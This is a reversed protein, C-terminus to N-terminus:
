NINAQTQIQEFYNVLGDAIGDALDQLYKSDQMLDLDEENTIYGLELLLSPVQNERLVQYNGFHVGANPRNTSMLAAQMTTAFHEDEIHYFYSAIGALSTDYSSDFHLSLFLDPQQINSMQAREALSPNTDDQRTMIVEAGLAQLTKKVIKGLELTFHKEEQTQDVSLTGPDEGGHGPDLLITSDALSLHNPQSRHNLSFIPESIQSSHLYGMAGYQDQAYYFAERESLTITDLLKFEQLFNAQYLAMSNLDAEQYFYGDDVRMILINEVKAKEKAQSDAELQRAKNKALITEAKAQDLLNIQSIPVFGPKGQYSIQAWSGQIYNIPLYSEQPIHALISSQTDQDKYLPSSKTFAASLKQDSSLQPRTLLWSPIWGETRGQYRVHYWANEQGLITVPDGAEIKNLIKANSAPLNHILVGEREIMLTDERALYIAGWLTLLVIFLTIFPLFIIPQKIKNKLQKDVLGM